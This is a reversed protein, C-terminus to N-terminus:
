SGVGPGAQGAVRRDVEREDPAEELLRKGILRPRDAESRRRRQVDDQM